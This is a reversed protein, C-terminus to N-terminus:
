GDAAVIVQSTMRYTMGWLVYDGLHVCPLTITKDGSKWEMTEKGGDREIRSLPAWLIAAVEANMTIKASPNDLAFVFQAVRYGNSRARVDALRTLLSAPRLRLGVEEETERICTDLLTADKPERKGGPFALHGSWPDSAREARKIFLAEAGLEGERLITAVAASAEGAGDAAPSGDGSTDVPGRALKSRLASLSFRSM